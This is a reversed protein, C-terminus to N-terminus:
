ARWRPPAAPGEGPCRARSDAREPACVGNPTTSFPPRVSSPRGLLAASTHIAYSLWTGIGLLKLADELFGRGLFEIPFHDQVQDLAASAALMAMAAAFVPYATQRLVPAFHAVYLLALVACGAVVVLQKIALYNPFVQDHLMFLDDLGLLGVFLGSCLLFRGWQADGGASRHVWGSFLFVSAAAAWLVAGVNSVFGLYFPRGRVAAPDGMM